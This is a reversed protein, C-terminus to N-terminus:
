IEVQSLIWSTEHRFNVQFFDPGGGAGWSGGPTGQQAGRPAAAKAGGRPAAAGERSGVAAAGAAPARSSAGGGPSRTVQHTVRQYVYLFGHFIVMKQYPLDM